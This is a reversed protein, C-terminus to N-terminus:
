ISSKQSSILESKLSFLDVTENFVTLFMLYEFHNSIETYFVPLYKHDKVYEFIKQIASYVSQFLATKIQAKISSDIM